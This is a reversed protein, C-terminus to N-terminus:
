NHWVEVDHSGEHGVLGHSNNNAKLGLGQIKGKLNLKGIKFLKLEDIGCVEIVMKLREV